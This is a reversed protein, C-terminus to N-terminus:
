NKKSPTRLEKGYLTINMNKIQLVSSLVRVKCQKSLSVVSSVFLKRVFWADSVSVVCVLLADSVYFYM